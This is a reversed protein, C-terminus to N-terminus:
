CREERIRGVASAPMRHQERIAIEKQRLCLQNIGPVGALLGRFWLHCPLALFEVVVTALIRGGAVLKSRETGPSMVRYGVM